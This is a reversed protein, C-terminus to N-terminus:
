GLSRDRTNEGFFGVLIATVLSFAATTVFVGDFGALGYVAAVLAAGGAGALRGAGNSLGSGLGRLTTPFVEPMYAYIAAANAQLLLTILFGAVATLWLLDTFAFVVMLAAVVLSIGALVYRRQWRDTVLMAALSGIPPAISLLTAITLAVDTSYGREVLLTPVWSNFGYFAVIGFVLTLATIITIRRQNGTFLEAVKGKAAPATREALVPAPLEGSYRSELRSVILAADEDRGAATLWRVSEPMVFQGIAAPILGFAGVVFVWRWAQPDLPIILKAAFAALPVGLLGLGLVAAQCRGRVRAPFMETVYVTLAGIVALIGVGSLARFVGLLAFTPALACLISSLAYLLTGGLIIRKRGFRDSLRGGILAGVFMGLLSLSNLHGVQAISLGWNAKMAPAAYALVYNDVTDGVSLLGLLPLWAWQARSMRPLRDLRAILEDGRARPVAAATPVDM